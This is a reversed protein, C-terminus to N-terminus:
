TLEVLFPGLLRDLLPCDERLPGHPLDVGTLRLPLFRKSFLMSVLLCQWCKRNVVQTVDKTSTEAFNRRIRNHLAGHAVLESVL